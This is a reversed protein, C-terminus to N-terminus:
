AKRLNDILVKKENTTDHYYMNKWVDITGKPNNKYITFYGVSLSNLSKYHEDRGEITFYGDYVKITIEKFYLTKIGKETFTKSQGKTSQLNEKKGGGGRKKLEIQIQDSLNYKVLQSKLYATKEEIEQEQKAKIIALQKEVEKIQIDYKSNISEVISLLEEKIEDHKIKNKLAKREQAERIIRDDDDDEIETINLKVKLDKNEEKLKTNDNILIKVTKKLNQYPGWGNDM